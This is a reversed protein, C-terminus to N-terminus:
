SVIYPIEVLFLYFFYKFKGRFYLPQKAIVSYKSATMSIELSLFFYKTNKLYGSPIFSCLSSIKIALQLYCSYTTFSVKLTHLCCSARLFSLISILEEKELLIDFLLDSLSKRVDSPNILDDILVLLDIDSEKTAEDRAYSGYLIIERLRIEMYKM